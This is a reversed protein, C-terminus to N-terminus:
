FDVVGGLIAYMAVIFFFDLSIVGVFHCLSM